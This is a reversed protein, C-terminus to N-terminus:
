DQPRFRWFMKDTVQSQKMPKTRGDAMAVLALGEHVITKTAPDIKRTGQHRFDVPSNGEWYSPQFVFGYDYSQGDGGPLWSANVFISTAFVITNSPDSIESYRAPNYCNWSNTWGGAIHGDSGIQGWNYGFGSLDGLWAKASHTPDKLIKGNMYSTLVGQKVDYDTGQENSKGFWAQMGDWTSYYALPVTDDNDSAYLQAATGLQKISNAANYQFAAGRAAKAVPVMIAFLIALIAIVTLLEVLTFGKRKM